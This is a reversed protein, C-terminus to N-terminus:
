KARGAVYLRKMHRLEDPEAHTTGDPTLGRAARMALGAADAATRVADDSHHRQFHRSAHRSWRGDDEERFIEIAASAMVGAPADADTEGRWAFFYGPREVCSTESFVTRYAALTNVDFVLVGGAALARRASRLAGALDHPDLLYNLSDDLCIVLDFEGLDPLERVDSRVLRVSCGARRRARSLMGESIDTATVEFGRRLFPEFSKGTGCALDLLRRGSLGHARALRELDRSLAEYRHGATFEDYFEAFADYMAEVAPAENM